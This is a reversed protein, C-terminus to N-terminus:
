AVVAGFPCVSLKALKFSQLGFPIGIITICFIIGIFFHVVALVFGGLILWIINGIPHEDFNTYVTKGFPALVLKAFKFAQLGFPIGILTVCWLLGLLFYGISSLLGGFLIWIINGLTRM